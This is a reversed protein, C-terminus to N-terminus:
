NYLKIYQHVMGDITFREKITDLASKEFKSLRIRDSLLEHLRNAMCEFDKPPVIYGNKGNEIIEPTGGGDTAIVPTGCAMSEMISNSVGEAHIHNNSCLLTVDSLKLLSVVDKRFGLFLVNSIGNAKVYDKLMMEDNGRGIVLFTTDDRISQFKKAVDLFMLFDKSPDLRAAMSVIYGRLNLNQRLENIEIDSPIRDSNFGNYIVHAKKIPAKHAKIGAWSNSVVADALCYNVRNILSDLWRDKNGDALSGEIYYFDRFLLFPNLYFNIRAGIWSHVVNPRIRNIIKRLSLFTHWRTDSRDLELYEEVFDFVYSYTIKTNQDRINLLWICYGGITSLHRILECMRRERGGDQLSGIFLIRKM